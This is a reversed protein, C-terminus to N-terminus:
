LEFSARFVNQGTTSFITASKIEIGRFLCFSPRLFRKREKLYKLALDLALIKVVVNFTIACLRSHGRLLIQVYILRTMFLIDTLFAVVKCQMRKSCNSNEIQKLSM